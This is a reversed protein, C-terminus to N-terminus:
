QIDATIHLENEQLDKAFAQSNQRMCAQGSMAQEMQDIHATSKRKHETKNETEKM